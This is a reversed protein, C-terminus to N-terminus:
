NSLTEETWKSEGSKHTKIQRSKANKALIRSNERGIALQIECATVGTTEELEEWTIEANSQRGIIIAEDGLQIKEGLDQNSIDIIVMNMSTKGVLPFRKGRILVHTTKEYAWSPLGNNYGIKITALISNRGKPTHYVSDYGVPTDPPVEAIWVVSSIFSSMVRKYRCDSNMEKPIDGYLAGGVRVMGRRTWPFSLTAGSNATHVIVDDPLDIRALMTDFIELQKRTLEEGREPDYANAYHTMIGRVQLGPLAMTKRIDEASVFGMRAMGTNVNLHIPIVCEKGRKESFWRTIRSLEKAQDFSGIVEEVPWNNLVAEAMEYFTGTAIRLITAQMGTKEMVQIATRIDSNAVMGIYAPDARLAEEMLLDVGHGYADAKMVICLKVDPGIDKKVHKINDAFISPDIVVCADHGNCITNSLGVLNAINYPLLLSEKAMVPFPITASVLVTGATALGMKIFYRRNM